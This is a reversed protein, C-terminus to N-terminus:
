KQNRLYVQVCMMVFRSIDGLFPFSFLLFYFNLIYLFFQIKKSLRLKVPFVIFYLCQKLDTFFIIHTHYKSELDTFIIVDSLRLSIFSFHIMVLYIILCKIVHIKKLYILSFSVLNLNIKIRKYVNTLSNIVEFIIFYKM